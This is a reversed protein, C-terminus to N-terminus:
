GTYPCTLAAPEYYSAASSPNGRHINLSLKMNAALCIGVHRVRIERERNVSESFTHKDYFYIATRLLHSYVLREYLDKYLITKFYMDGTYSIFGQVRIMIGNQSLNPYDPTQSVIAVRFPIKFCSYVKGAVGFLIYINCFMRGPACLGNKYLCKHHGRRIM